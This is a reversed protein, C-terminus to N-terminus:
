CRQKGPQETHGMEVDAPVDDEDEEGPSLTEQLELPLLMLAGVMISADEDGSSMNLFLKPLFLSKNNWCLLLLLRQNFNKKAKCLFM